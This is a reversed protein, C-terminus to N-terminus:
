MREQSSFVIGAVFSATPSTGGTFAVTPTVRVRDDGKTFYQTDVDVSGIKNAATVALTVANGDRNNCTHWTSGDASSELAFTVSATTPTGTTGAFHGVLVFSRQGNLLVASGATAAGSSLGAGQYANNEANIYYGLNNDKPHM